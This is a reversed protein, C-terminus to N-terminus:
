LPEGLDLEVPAISVLEIERARRRMELVGPLPGELRGSARWTFAHEPAYLETGRAAPDRHESEEFRELAVGDPLSGCLASRVRGALDESYVEVAFEVAAGRVERRSELRLGIEEPAKALATALPGAVEGPALLQHHSGAALLDRLRAAVTAGGVGADRGFLVRDRGSGGSAFGAVFARLPKEGGTVILELWDSM